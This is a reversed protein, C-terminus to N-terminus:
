RADGAEGEFGRMPAIMSSRRSRSGLFSCAVAVGRLLGSRGLRGCGFGAGGGTRPGGRRSRRPVRRRRPRGASRSSGRRRGRGRGGTGGRGSFGRGGEEAVRLAARLGGREPVADALQDHRHALPVEGDVVDLPFQRAPRGCSLMLARATRSRSSPKARSGRRRSSSRGAVRLGSAAATASTRCSSRDSRAGEAGADGAQEEEHGSICRSSRRRTTWSAAGARIARHDGASCARRLRSARLSIPLSRLLWTMSRTKSWPSARNAPRLTM